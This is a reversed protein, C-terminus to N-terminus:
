TREAARAAREAKERAREADRERQREISRRQMAGLAADMTGGGGGLVCAILSGTLLLLNLLGGALGLVLLQFASLLAGFGGLFRTLLGGFLFVGLGFQFFALWLTLELPRMGGVIPWGHWGTYAGYLDAQARMELIHTVGQYMFAAGTLLRLWLLLRRQSM